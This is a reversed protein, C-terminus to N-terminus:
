MLFSIIKLTNPESKKPCAISELTKTGLGRELEEDGNSKLLFLLSILGIFPVIIPKEVFIFSSKPIISLLLLFNSSCTVLLLIKKLIFLLSIFSGM